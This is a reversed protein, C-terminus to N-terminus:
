KWFPPQKVVGRITCDGCYRVVSVYAGIIPYLPTETSTPPVLIAAVDDICPASKPRCYYFTDLGSCNLNPHWIAPLQSKDIFIRKSQLTSASIYGIVPLSPTTICHINGYQQSPQADFISGLQETNTRLTTWFNYADQNIAYQKLLISYRISIKESSAEINTLPQQYIVDQLLKASSGVIINSSVDSGYCLYVQDSASRPVIIKGNSKYDSNYSVHFRWTEEYEWRYYRTNKGDDHTNAYLSIGDSASNVSFGLSDIAPTIKAQSYDSLYM